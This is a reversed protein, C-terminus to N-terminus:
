GCDRAGRRGEISHGGRSRHPENRERPSSQRVPRTPVRLKSAGPMRAPDVLAHVAVGPPMGLSVTRLVCLGQPDGPGCEANGGTVTGPPLALLEASHRDLRLPPLLNDHHPFYRAMDDDRGSIGIRKAVEAYYPEIERYTFPFERLEDDNLPYVGATWAEALGGQAFSFLPEFGEAEYHLTAPINFVASKTPPVGYYNSYYEPECGPHVVAAFNEGLFYSVPDPLSRKLENLTAGPRIAPVGARGADVMVVAYGRRLLSLAFHVGSAGSGVVLVRSL